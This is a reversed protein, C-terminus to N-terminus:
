IELVNPPVKGSGFTEVDEKVADPLSDYEAKIEEPEQFPINKVKGDTDLGLVKCTIKAVLEGNEWCKTAIFEVIKKMYPRYTRLFDKLKIILKKAWKKIKDWNYVVVGGILAGIGAGILVPIM